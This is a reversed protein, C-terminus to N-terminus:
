TGRHANLRRYDYTHVVPMKGVAPRYMAINTVRRLTAKGVTYSCAPAQQDALNVMHRYLAAYQDGGDENYQSM